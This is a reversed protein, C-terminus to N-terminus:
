FSYNYLIVISAKRPVTNENGLFDPIIVLIYLSKPPFIHITDAGELVFQGPATGLQEQQLLLRHAAM